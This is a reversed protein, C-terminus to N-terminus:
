ATFPDPTYLEATYLELYCHKGEYNLLEEQLDHGGVVFTDDWAVFGTWESYPICGHEVELEGFLTKLVKEDVTEPDIPKNSITYRLHVKAGDFDTGELEEAVMDDGIYFESDSGEEIEGCFIKKM